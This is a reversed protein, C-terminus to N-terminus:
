PAEEDLRTTRRVRRLADEIRNGTAVAPDAEFQLAPTRKMRIESGLCGQLHRRHEELAGTAGEPLSAFFVVAHRLDEECIVGTVTLLALRDDTDALREIEDALVEHVLRNVRALRPYPREPAHRHHHTARRSM